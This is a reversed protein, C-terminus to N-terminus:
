DNGPLSADGPELVRYAKRVTRGTPSTTVQELRVSRPSVSNVRWSTGPLRDGSQLLMPGNDTALEVIWTGRAGAVGAVVMRPTPLRHTGPHSPGPAASRNVPTHVNPVVALAPAPIAPTVAPLSNESGLSSRRADSEIAARQLAALDQLSLSQGMAAMSTTIVSTVVCLRARVGTCGKAFM